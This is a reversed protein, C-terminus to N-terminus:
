AGTVELWQGDPLLQPRVGLKLWRRAAELEFCPHDIRVIILHARMGSVIYDPRLYAIYGESTVLTVAPTESWRMYM